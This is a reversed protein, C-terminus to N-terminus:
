AARFLDFERSITPDLQYQQTKIDLHAAAAFVRLKCLVGNPLPNEVDPALLGRETELAITQDEHWDLEQLDASRSSRSTKVVDIWTTHRLKVSFALQFDGPVDIDANMEAWREPDQLEFERITRPLRFVGSYM